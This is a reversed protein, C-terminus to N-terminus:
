LYEKNYDDDDNFNYNENLFSPIGDGGIRDEKNYYFANYKPREIGLGVSQLNNQSDNLNLCNQNSTLNQDVNINM